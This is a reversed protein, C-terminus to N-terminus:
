EGIGGINEYDTCSDLSFTIQDEACLVSTQNITKVPILRIKATEILRPIDVVLSESVNLQKPNQTGELECNIIGTKIKTSNDQNNLSYILFCDVDFRGTNRLSFNITNSLYGCEEIIASVGEPCTIEETPVRSKAWIYIGSAIAIVMVTLLVYSVLTSLGKKATISRM